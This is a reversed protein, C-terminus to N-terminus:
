LKINRPVKLVSLKSIGHIGAQEIQHTNPSKRM